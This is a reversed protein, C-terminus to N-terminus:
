SRSIFHPLDVGLGGAVEDVLDLVGGVAGVAFDGEDVFGISHVGGGGVGEKFGEFFGWEIGGEEEEGGLGVM